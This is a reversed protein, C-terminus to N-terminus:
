KFYGSIDTYDNQYYVNSLDYGVLPKIDVELFPNFYDEKAKLYGDSLVDNNRNYDGMVNAKKFPSNRLGWRWEIDIAASIRIGYEDLNSSKSVKIFCIENKTRDQKRVIEVTIGLEKFQEYHLYFCNEQYGSGAGYIRNRPSHGNVLLPNITAMRLCIYIDRSNDEYLYPEFDLVAHYTQGMNLVDSPGIIINTYSYPPFKGLASNIIEALEAWKEQEGYNTGSYFPIYYLVSCNNEVRKVVYDDQQYQLLTPMIYHGDSRLFLGSYIMTDDAGMYNGIINTDELLYAIYNEWYENSSDIIPLTIIDRNSKLLYGYFNNSNTFGLHEHTFFPNYFSNGFGAFLTNGDHTLLSRRSYMKGIDGVPPFEETLPSGSRLVGTNIVRRDHPYFNDLQRLSIPEM